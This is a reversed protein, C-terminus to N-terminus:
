FRFAIGYGPQWYDAYVVYLFSTVHKFLLLNIGVVAGFNNYSKDLGGLYDGYPYQIIEDYVFAPATWLTLEQGCYSFARELQLAGIMSRTDKHYQDASRDFSFRECYHFSSSIRLIEANIIRLIMGAGITYDRYNRGPFQEGTYNYLHGTACLTLWKTAAYKAFIADIGWYFDYPSHEQTKRHYKKKVFGLECTRAPLEPGLAQGILVNTTILFILINRNAILQM